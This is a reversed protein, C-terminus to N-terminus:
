RRGRVASWRERVPHSGLAQSFGELEREIRETDLEPGLTRVVSAADEVDLERTSLVKFLVFDEPTLVRIERGRLRSRLARDLARTAYDPDSPEVLDLTNLEEGEIMTIRSVLLGGFRRRDFAVRCHLGLEAALLSSTESPDARVVAIDADKTERAQGYAALLLGGYLAHDVRGRRLVDAVDLAFAVPDTLDM